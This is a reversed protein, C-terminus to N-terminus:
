LCTGFHQPGGELAHVGIDQAQLLDVALMNGSSLFTHQSGEVLQQCAGAVGAIISRRRGPRVAAHEVHVIEDRQRAKGNTASAFHEVIEHGRRLV